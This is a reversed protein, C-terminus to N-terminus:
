APPPTYRWNNILFGGFRNNQRRLFSTDHDRWQGSWVHCWLRDGPNLWYQTSVAVTVNTDNTATFIDKVIRNADAVVIEINVDSSGTFDTSPFDWESYLYYRGANQCIVDSNSADLFFGNIGHEGDFVTDQTIRTPSSTSRFSGTTKGVEFFWEGPKPIAELAQVRALLDDATDDTKSNGLVAEIYRDNTTGGIRVRQGVVSPVVNTIVVRVDDEGTEAGGPYRVICYREELNIETVTAYSQAPRVKEVEARAVKRMVKMMEHATTHRGLGSM